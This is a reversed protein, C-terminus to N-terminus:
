LDEGFKDEILCKIAIIANEADTGKADIEVLSDCQAGLMLIDMISKADAVKDNCAITIKSKFNEACSVLKASARAHLGKRNTLKVSDKCQSTM